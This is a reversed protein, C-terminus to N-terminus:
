GKEAAIMLATKGDSNRIKDINGNMRLIDIVSESYSVLINDLYLCWHEYRSILIKGTMTMLLM